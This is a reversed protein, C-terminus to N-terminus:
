DDVARGHPQNYQTVYYWYCLVVRGSMYLVASIRAAIDSPIFSVVAQFKHSDMIDPSDKWLAELDMLWTTVDYTFVPLRLHTNEMEMTTVSPIQTVAPTVLQLTEKYM